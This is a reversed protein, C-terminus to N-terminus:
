TRLYRGVCRNISEELESVRNLIDDFTPTTNFFMGSAIMSNLDVRLANLSEDSSPVLKFEGGLCAGYNAHKSPFFVEKHKVVDKLLTIDMKSGDGFLYDGLKAIDYWHRSLREANASIKNSQCKEHILTAKEWFTREASLVPAEAEPFKLEPVHTSIDPSIRIIESPNVTNRGGFEILISSDVYDKSTGESVLVSPYYLRLSENKANLDIRAERSGIERQLKSELHPKVTSEVYSNVCEKIEKRRRELRSRSMGKEFPNMPMGLSQHDITVDVDESFREIINYAKSLSTGGKFVMPLRAQMTFLEELAWCVWIDKELIVPRLGIDSAVRRIIGSQETPDLQLFSESM